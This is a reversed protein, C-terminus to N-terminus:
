SVRNTVASLMRILMDSQIIHYHKVQIQVNLVGVNDAGVHSPVRRLSNSECPLQREAWTALLRIGCHPM